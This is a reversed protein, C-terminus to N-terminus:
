AVGPQDRHAELWRDVESRRHVLRKGLKFAPPGVRRRRMDYLTRLPLRVYAAVEALSMLEDGTHLTLTRWLGIAYLLV